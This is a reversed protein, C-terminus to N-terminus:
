PIEFRKDPPEAKRSKMEKLCFLRRVAPGDQHFQRILVVITSGWIQVLLARLPSTVASIRTTSSPRIDFAHKTLMEPAVQACTPEGHVCRCQRSNFLYRGNDVRRARRFVSRPQRATSPSARQTATPSMGKETNFNESM